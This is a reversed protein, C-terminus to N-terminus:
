LVASIIVAFEVMFVITSLIPNVQKVLTKMNADRQTHQNLLPM